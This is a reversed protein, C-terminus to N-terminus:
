KKIFYITFFVSIVVEWTVPHARKKKWSTYCQPNFINMNENRGEPRFYLLTFHLVVLSLFKGVAMLSRSLSVSDYDDSSWVMNVCGTQVHSKCMCHKSKSKDKDIQERKPTYEKWEKWRYQKSKQRNIISHPNLQYRKQYENGDAFSSNSQVPSRTEESHMHRYVSQIRSCFKVNSSVMKLQTINHHANKWM